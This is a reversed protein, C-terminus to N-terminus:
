KAKAQSIEKSILNEFDSFEFSILGASGLYIFIYVGCILTRAGAGRPNRPAYLRSDNYRVGQPSM